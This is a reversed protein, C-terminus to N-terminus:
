GIRLAEFGVRALWSGPVSFAISPGLLMPRLLGRSALRSVGLRLSGDASLVWLVFAFGITTLTGGVVFFCPCLHGPCSGFPGWCRWLDHAPLLFM